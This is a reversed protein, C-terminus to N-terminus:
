RDDPISTARPGGFPSRLLDLLQRSGAETDPSRLYAPSELLGPAPALASPQVALHLLPVHPPRHEPLGQLAPEGEPGPVCVVLRLLPDAWIFPHLPAPIRRVHARAHTPWCPEGAVEPGYLLLRPRGASPCAMARVAPVWPSAAAVYVQADETVVWRTLAHVARVSAPSMLSPLWLLVRSAACRCLSAPMDAFWPVFGSSPSVSM